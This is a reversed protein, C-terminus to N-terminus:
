YHQLTCSSGRLQVAPLVCGCLMMVDPPPMKQKFGASLQRTRKGPTWLHYEGNRPTFAYLLLELRLGASASLGGLFLIPCGKGCQQQWALHCVVSVLRMM